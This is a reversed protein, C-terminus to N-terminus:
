GTTSSAKRGGAGKRELGALTARVTDLVFDMRAALDAALFRLVYYGHAQLAADKRRDRRWADADGLHQGGDVEVILRQAACLFDVEMRGLDDFPIPLHANLQFRGALDPLSEFRQFLFAESASRARADGILGDPFATAADVFLRALPIDVGDRILRRVSATYTEKWQPDVPLPVEAPWGPLASAPLLITYGVAEYGACRREFMRELMRVGMDVYDYVRVARKGHHLRHLRGVYQAITGHWSVPMTLLLTDLRSDDFGEGIFRGTAVLVRGEDEPVSRLRELAGLLEKRGMGGRLRIVHPVAGALMEALTELHATRETLVVPSRGCRVAEAVDACIMRNRGDSTALLDCLRQFEERQDEAPEGGPQWGTPRVWAEHSFPREEAQRRADVRYRVPGCQMFIVPHHGDKRTVTASLGTVYRARARRAVREFSQASLHHCEDVVLHGYHGVLEAVVGKRVLSQMLAVDIRGTLKRRGGGWRGIDKPDLALFGALREIWQELLQQRHVVVLTNVGRQAILWAALVTKGFATTAALVGTDHALMAAAANPQEDRLEGQFELALPEGPNREDRVTTKVGATELLALLEEHCGRPLGIHDPFDEACSIIRPKDHVTVRMAQAKYFEPNQFAALRVLANRLSPGVGAKPVYLQDAMVIALQPPVDQRKVQQAAGERRARWPEAADEEDLAVMRVGVIRGRGEAEAVRCELDATPIRAIGALAAWQDPLPNLGADIFVSHGAERPKKQLPLAILNGFGGRPLTDQNPFLRDYSRLGVEPRREMTVTLLFSGLKRALVAPVADEFFMWVHGGAGSRSRELLAPTELGRCTALYALADEAWSAGDFDVALFHCREDRLMPYVGMVFPKGRADAGQLHWRVVEDTVPLWSQHSCDACKTRPKDCIGRAWENACAPQYGAKGSRANEYRRAYVEERGRFLSRFLTIKVEAPSHADVQTMASLIRM